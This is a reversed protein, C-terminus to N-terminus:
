SFAAEILYFVLIFAVALTLGIIVKRLQSSSTKYKLLFPIPIFLIMISIIWTIVNM